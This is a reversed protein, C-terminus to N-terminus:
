KLISRIEDVLEISAEIEVRRVSVSEINCGIPINKDQAFEVLETFQTKLLEMSRDLIDGSNLLENELWRPISIGLWKMFNLTKQSGCPTLTFLIPVMPLDNQLCYFYYDSLFNKSAELNYVAQSVFFKCGHEVKNRVRLHEDNFMAHREPIMVGGLILDSQLSKNLQYAEELKLLTKQKPSSAGVFVSLREEDRGTSIWDKLQEKTYNGVCRYIIRPVELESLYQRSYEQSDITPLFPFPREMDTRESEEQIDYIILGDIPLDTLREIHRRAIQLTKERPNKKKPPTIGYTMIGSKGALIKDVLM